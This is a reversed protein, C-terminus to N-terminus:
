RAQKRLVPNLFELDVLLRLVEDTNGTIFALLGPYAFVVLPVRRSLLGGFM